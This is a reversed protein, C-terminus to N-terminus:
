RFKSRSGVYLQTVEAPTLVRNYLLIAGILGPFFRESSVSKGVLVKAYRRPPNLPASLAVEAEKRGDIVFSVGTGEWTVGVLSWKGPAVSGKSYIAPNRTRADSYNFRAWIRGGYLGFAFDELEQGADGRSLICGSAEPGGEVKVWAFFAGQKEVLRAGDTAGYEVHGAM